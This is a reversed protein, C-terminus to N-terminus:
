DLVQLKENNLNWSAAAINFKGSEGEIGGCAVFHGAGLISEFSQQVRLPLFSFCPSKLDSSRLIFKEQFLLLTSGDFQKNGKIFCGVVYIQCFLDVRFAV